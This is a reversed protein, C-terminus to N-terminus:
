HSPAEDNKGTQGLLERGEKILLLIENEVDISFYTTAEIDVLEKLKARAEDTRGVKALALMYYGGSLVRRNQPETPALNPELSSLAESYRGLQYLIAGRSVTKSYDTPDSAAVREIDKLIKLELGAALPLLRAATAVEFIASFELKPRAGDNVYAPASVRPEMVARFGGSDGRYALVKAYDLASASTKAEVLYEQRHKALLSYASDAINANPSLAGSVLVDFFRPDLSEISKPRHALQWNWLYASGNNVAVRLDSLATSREEFFVLKSAALTSLPWVITGESNTRILVDTGHSSFQVEHAGDEIDLRALERGSSTDWLGVVGDFVTVARTNDPSIALQDAHPNGKLSAFERFDNASRISVGGGFRATAFIKGDDSFVGTSAKKLKKSLDALERGTGLSWARGGGQGFSIVGADNPTFIVEGYTKDPISLVRKRSAIDFIAPLGNPEIVAVLSGGGSFRVGRISDIVPVTLLCRGVKADWIRATYDTSYTALRSKDKSFFAGGVWESHGSMVSIVRRSRLDFIEVRHDPKAGVALTLDKSVGLDNTLGSGVKATARSACAEWLLTSGDESDTMVYKGDSSFSANTIPSPTNLTIAAQVEYPYTRIDVTGDEHILLLRMGDLSFRVGDIPSRSGIFNSVLSHTKADYLFATGGSGVVAVYNGDPSYAADKVASGSGGSLDAIRKGTEANWTTAVALNGVTVVQDGSPSFTASEPANISQFSRWLERGTQEDWLRVSQDLGTTLITKGNPSFTASIKDNNNGQGFTRELAGTNANWLQCTWGDLNCTLLEKGDPSYQCAHVFGTQGRLTALPRGTQLDFQKVVASKLTADLGGTAIAVRSGDPSCCIRLHDDAAATKFRRIQKRKSVDYITVLGSSISVIKKGDPTFTSYSPHGSPETVTALQTHMRYDWMTWEPGRFAAFKPDATEKLLDNVLGNQGNSYAESMLGMDTLYLQRDVEVKASKAEATTAEAKDREVLYQRTREDARQKQEEATATEQKALRTQGTLAVLAAEKAQSEKQLAELARSKKQAEEDRQALLQRATRAQWFGFGALALVVAVVGGAGLAVRFTARRAANRQRLAEAEPLNAEVWSRDFARFYVRNRVVLYGNLVRTLGSLKLVSVVPDTDDDKVRSERVQRYTELMRARAEDQAVGEISSELVRRSVDSLNPEETRAKLSFFMAEVLRDVGSSSRISHDAVVASSLKQTLYPHGATWHHIRGLLAAGNRGGQSLPTKYSSLEELTFDTLEIRKGVNFPTIRVDRILESPTAVGLLCFTLGTASGSARRNHCERIGAFFEDTSFPLSRVFDIEDVFVVCRGVSEGVAKEITRFFRLMPGGRRDGEWLALVRDEMGLQEGFALLLSGYWREADVNSGFRQLDLLASRIGRQDLALRTRVMLSSKGKQRSDLVYAFDGAELTALLQQDAQRVVYSEAGQSLTGETVFFGSNM